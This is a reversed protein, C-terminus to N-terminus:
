KKSRPDDSPNVYTIKWPGAGHLQLVTEGAAWVYHQTHPSMMFFSGAPLTQATSEDWKAGLGLHLEGSVVTVHEPSPHWHAPLKYGDPMKLRMTYAGPKMPDGDLVALQAGAPLADPAPGWQIKDPTVVKHAETATAHTKTAKKSAHAQAFVLPACIWICFVMIYMAMRHRDKM